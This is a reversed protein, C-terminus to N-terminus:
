EALSRAEALGAALNRGRSFGRQEILAVADEARRWEREDAVAALSVLDQQDRPRRKPDRSVLKMAVLHGVAAVPTPVDLVNLLSADAVIEPEIGCSAFLLDVIPLGERERLRATALRQTSTQEITAIVSFGHQRLEFLVREAAADDEVALAFDLDRTFRPETRASVAVGGVLAISHGDLALLIKRLTPGLKTVESTQAM